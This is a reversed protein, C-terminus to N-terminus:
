LGFEIHQQILGAALVSRHLRYDAKSKLIIRPFSQGIKSNVSLEGSSNLLLLESQVLVM